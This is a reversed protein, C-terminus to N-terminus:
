AKAVLYCRHIKPNREFDHPITRTTIDEVQLGVARLADANLKFSRLNCSFVITGGPALVAAARRLLEAHDRQVDFVGASKSKSNSFTPPDCFVLDFQEGRTAAHVLWQMVDAREFRHVKRTFGNMRMNRRAWDLYTQSLDVTTTSRAGGGAAHVTATGTYAFLNLFRAGSSMGGVMERTTRHDLFIGTDLYANLDIEFQYGGEQTYTVFPRAQAERYQGGGKARRRVKSFVHTADVDLVAPAIALADSFRRAARAPDVTAPAKYEAIRLFRTGEDLGAGEYVDVSLAYDPLDADYVRYCSVGARRAWKAREKAVKRLRATFQASNEEAAAVTREIGSLSVVPIEVRASLDVRYLRLSVEIAGNYCPIAQEPQLGLASDISADPTVVALQWGAALETAAKALAAYMAPLQGGSLLRQGYPPNVAMLGRPALGGEVGLERALDAADSVHFEVLHAVQAREANARALEIAHADIDSAVIRPLQADTGKARAIAADREAQWRDEDHLAWGDFGWRNRLLGPAVNAAILAAEIALTGSGCMPDVFAADAAGEANALADGNTGGAADFTAGTPQGDAARGANEAACGAVDGGQMRDATRDQRAPKAERVGALRDWGAALLMGAALTEKLPAESQVGEERYGRRHLSEGSVNLYLTAKPGRLSVDIAFDPDSADVDPRKGRKARLRDCVADKVKLATFQTNRLNPNEGHARVAITAGSLVHTEWPFAAVNDYLEQADRAGVRALVLQIRTATRSWLCARYAAEIGGFFAVGGKLPRVQWIRLMKLERALVDEFGGACRAFCEWKTDQM